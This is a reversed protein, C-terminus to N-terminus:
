ALESMPAEVDLMRETPPSSLTYSCAFLGRGAPRYPITEPASTPAEESFLAEM